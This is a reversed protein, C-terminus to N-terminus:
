LLISLIFLQVYRVIIISVNWCSIVIIHIYHTYIYIYIYIAIHHGWWPGGTDSLLHADKICTTNWNQLHVNQYLIVVFFDFFSDMRLKCTSCISLINTSKIDLDNKSYICTKHVKSMLIMAKKFLIHLGQASKVDFENKYICTKHVQTIKQTHVPKTCEQHWFWEIEQCHICTKHPKPNQASQIDFDKNKKAYTSKTFRLHRFGAYERFLMKTILFHEISWEWQVWSFTGTWPLM